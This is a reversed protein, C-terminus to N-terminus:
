IINPRLKNIKNQENDRWVWDKLQLQKFDRENPEPLKLPMYMVSQDQVYQIYAKSASYLEKSCYDVVLQNLAEVEERVNNGFQVYGLFYSRMIIMLNNMNPPPIIYKTESMEYVNSRIANQIIQINERSFFVQALVNDEWLGKLSDCYTVAKNSVAIKEMMQMKQQPNEEVLNIRGNYRQDLSLITVGYANNLNM